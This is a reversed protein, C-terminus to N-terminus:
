AVMCKWYKCMLHKASLQSFKKLKNISVQFLNLVKFVPIINRSEIM